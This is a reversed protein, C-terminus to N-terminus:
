NPKTQFILLYPVAPRGTSDKFNHFSGSNLWWGYTHGPDLRVKMVCTRDDSLYRPPATSTPTSNEWATSWSWSGDEMPKSFRVRIETEGSPVDRAGSLPFTEVVVPPQQAFLLTEQVQPAALSSSPLGSQPNPATVNSPREIAGANEAAETNIEDNRRVFFPAGAVEHKGRFLAAGRFLIPYTRARPAGTVFIRAANQVQIHLHPHSTNGSNGCKALPQGAHVVEGTSVLVSGKQLHAMLVFRGEGIELCIHNGAPNEEDTEGVINDELGDQVVSVKGDAPAFM